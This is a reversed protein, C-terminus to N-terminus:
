MHCTRATPVPVLYHHHGGPHGKQDWLPHRGAPTCSSFLSRPVPLMFATRSGNGAQSPGTMMCLPFVSRGWILPSCTISQPLRSPSSAAGGRARAEYYDMLRNSPSGDESAMLTGMPPMVIRNKLEMTKIKIPRFLHELKIQEEM